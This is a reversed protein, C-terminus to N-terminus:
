SRSRIKLFRERESVLVHLVRSGIIAAVIVYFALDMAKAPNQGVRKAERSVWIMGAVFALAVMFGYTYITITHGFVPIQLLVPYM